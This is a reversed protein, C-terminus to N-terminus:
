LADFWANFELEFLVVRVTGQKLITPPLVTRGLESMVVPDQALLVFL